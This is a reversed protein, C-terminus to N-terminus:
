AHVYTYFVLLYYATMRNYYVYMHMAIRILSNEKRSFIKHFTM